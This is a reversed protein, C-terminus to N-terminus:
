HALWPPPMIEKEVRNRVYLYLAFVGKPGSEKVSLTQRHLKFWIQSVSANVVESETIRLENGASKGNLITQTKGWM